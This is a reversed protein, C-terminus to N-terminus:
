VEQIKIGHVWLMLKRKIIYEKTRIGKADEVIEVGGFMYVFDAYYSCEREIVKGCQRQSPILVYKVQRRLNSIRGSKEMQVLELWRNAEKKSDFAEGGVTVKQNRYKSRMRDRGM